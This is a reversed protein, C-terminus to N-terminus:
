LKRVAVRRLATELDLHPTVGGCVGNTDFFAKLDAVSPAGCVGNTDFFARLSEAMGGLQSAEKESLSDVRKLASNIEVGARALMAKLENKDSM